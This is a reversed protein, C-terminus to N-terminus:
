QPVLPLSPARPLTWTTRTATGSDNAAAAPPALDTPVPPILTATPDGTNEYRQKQAALILTQQERSLRNAGGAPMSPNAMPGPLSGVPRAPAGAPGPAAGATVKVGDKDFDLTTITGYEKIKVAGVKENIELVEIDGDRQGEGLTFSEERAPEGPKAPPTMKLLARKSGLITTIGTLFVKPPPPKTSEPGPPPPPPKLGFVNRDVIGQYLNGTADGIVANGPTCLALGALTCILMRERHKMITLLYFVPISHLNSFWGEAAEARCGALAPRPPSRRM